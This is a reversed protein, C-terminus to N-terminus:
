HQKLTKVLGLDITRDNLNASKVEVLVEDGFSIIRKSQRGIIRYNNADLEYYDDNLDSLRVMGECKNEEIEVFIGWETVGSVIGKYENGITDKMFEVQKYKISAREADAARKEMESSHRCREEYEEKDTSSGGDLYHQLLRHAMMDPYRRIPSTFHSYHAFALGFHGEPETSYKAKAMTRIALNQLVSQEPKGEIDATLQNLEDSIDGEPDVKYGFKRAFLAFTALRDPDPNGHTRYVMTPRKKGKGLNYVYEAVKKNALLMFEEILKHADKREKVYVSLPRGNEDLNFKVETTEFSIAGNKFRKAQLKKAISNLINIEESFDGEGSEIREQAEEYSFRRDSYIITRGFWSEYIKGKEDLEFVASFTLKEENPRLSCLGNSLREPLMPITRDVLYVSTARKFAERELQTKPHVYHTVDAIHVGIEWNGNELKQISLADDFDKADAPDITFTTVDRFDRRKAIEGATIKESISDAEQEVEEPFEFPLGFEAMISHIEAENEGAPGFVRIVEGTPNKDPKDPWEVIKVLVKDGSNAGNLGREGVFVDFYLKKFDPVVFGYNKSLEMIGVLETRSRELVEIVVGEQRGGRVTPSVEVKVIDGDMAYNLHERFVRVDEERGESVIYAYKSNALDVRGTIIDVKLNMMYKDGDVQLLKNENKLTNVLSETQERGRQDTVGLRRFLQRLTFVTDPSSSFIELVLAKASKPGGKRDSSGGGRRSSDGKSSSSRGRSNDKGRSSSDSRGRSDSRKDRSEDGSKNKKSRM